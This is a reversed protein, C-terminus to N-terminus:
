VREVFYDAKSIRLKKMKSHLTTSPIELLAAAGGNGSIKGNCKKLTKVIHTREIQQLTRNFLDPHNDTDEIGSTPLQIEKLENEPSLLVSREILHELERVNGPWPYNELEHIVKTSIAMVKRGTNNNYRSLFYIALSAIDERRERLPPLHIPFVNLRYYLDARFHGEKVEKELNRNTAAIIRVNVRIPAKAGVRTIERDQLAHLLKVQTDLPMEGIEDLFLTSNNALEFKGIRREIAGTFSGKEHGFLESEILSTPMAACNVKIIQKNKRPSSHHIADAILGKGTGTEGLLLVTSNSEAVLSVMHYVKQMASASGIINSFNYIAKSRDNLYHNAHEAIQINVYAPENITVHSIANM